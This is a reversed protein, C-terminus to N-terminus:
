RHHKHREPHSRQDEDGGGEVERDHLTQEDMLSTTPQPVDADLAVGMAGPERHTLNTPDREGPIPEPIASPTATPRIHVPNRGPLDLGGSAAVVNTTAPGGSVPTMSAARM